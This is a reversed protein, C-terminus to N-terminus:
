KPRPAARNHEPESTLAGTMASPGATPEPWPRPSNHRPRAVILYTGDIHGMMVAHTALRGGPLEAAYSATETEVPRGERMDAIEPVPSPGGGHGATPRGLLAWLGACLAVIAAGALAARVVRRRRRRARVAAVVRDALDPPATPAAQELLADLERDDTDV